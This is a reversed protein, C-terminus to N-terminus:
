GELNMMEYFNLGLMNFGENIRGRCARYVKANDYRIFVTLLIMLAEVKMLLDIVPM